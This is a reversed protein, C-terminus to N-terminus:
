VEVLDFSDKIMRVPPIELNYGKDFKWLSCKIEDSKDRCSPLNDCRKEMKICQGDNCTFEDELCGTLKLNARYSGDKGCEFTDNKIEWLHKGLVFSVLPSASTGQTKVEFNDSVQLVWKRQNEKFHIITGLQGIYEM